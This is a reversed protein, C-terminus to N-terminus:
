DDVHVYSGVNPTAGKNGVICWLVPLSWTGWTGGLYGDTLVIVAQAKIGTEKIHM